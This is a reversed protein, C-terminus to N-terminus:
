LLQKSMRSTQKKKSLNNSRYPFSRWFLHKGEISGSEKETLDYICRKIIPWVIFGLFQKLLQPFLFKSVNLSLILPFLDTSHIKHTAILFGLSEYSITKERSQVSLSASIKEYTEESTPSAFSFPKENKTPLYLRHCVNRILM